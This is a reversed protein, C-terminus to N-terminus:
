ESPATKPFPICYPTIWFGFFGEGRFQCNLQYLCFLCLFICYALHYSGPHTAPSFPQGSPSDNEVPTQHLCRQFCSRSFALPCLACEWPFPVADPFPRSPVKSSGSRFQPKPEWLRVSGRLTSQVGAALCYHVLHECGGM